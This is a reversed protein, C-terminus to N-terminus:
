QARYMDVADASNIESKFFRKDSESAFISCYQLRDSNSMNSLFRMTPSYYFIFVLVIAYVDQKKMHSFVVHICYFYFVMFHSTYRYLIPVLGGAISFIVSVVGLYILESYEENKNKKFAFIYIFILQAAGAIASLVSVGEGESEAYRGVSGDEFSGVMERIESLSLFAFVFLGLIIILNKGSLQKFIRVLPLALFIFMGSHMMIALFVFIYYQIYKRDLFYPLGYFIFALGFCERIGSLEAIFVYGFFALLLYFRKLDLRTLLKYFSHYFLFAQLIQLFVFQDFLTKITAVLLVYGPMARYLLFDQLSLHALDPMVSFSYMYGPTDNGTGYRFAVLLALFVFTVNFIKKYVQKTGVKFVDFFLSTVVLFAFIYYFLNPIM